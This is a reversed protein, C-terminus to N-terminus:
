QKRGVTRNMQGMLVAPDFPRPPKTVTAKAGKGKGSLEMTVPYSPAGPAQTVSGQLKILGFPPAEDSVWTDVTDGSAKKDRYHKTAFTGAAVTLRESGVLKRPDLPAFQDKQAGEQRLEMPDNDGLQMVLQKIRDRKGPDAALVAKVAVKGGRGMSGGESIMEVTNTAADRAVLAFRQKLPPMGTVTITYESWDGVHAKRMDMGTPLPPGPPGQAVAVAPVCLLAIALIRTMSLPFM